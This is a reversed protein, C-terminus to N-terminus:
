DSLLRTIAMTDPYEFIEVIEGGRFRIYSCIIIDEARGGGRARQRFHRCAAVQNGDIVLDVVKMELTEVSANLQRAWELVAERGERRISFHKRLLGKGVYVCDRALYPACGEVEGRKRMEWIARVRQEILERDLASLERNADSTLM